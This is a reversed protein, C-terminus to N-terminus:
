QLSGGIHQALTQAFLVGGALAGDAHFVNGFDVFRILMEKESCRKSRSTTFVESISKTSCLSSRCLQQPAYTFWVRVWYKRGEAAFARARGPRLEAARARVPFL